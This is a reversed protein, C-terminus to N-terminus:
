NCDISEIVILIGYMVCVATMLWISGPPINWGSRESNKMLREPRSEIWLPFSLVKRKWSRPWNNYNCEGDSLNFHALPAYRLSSLDLSRKIQGISPIAHRHFYRTWIFVQLHSYTINRIIVSAIESSNWRLSLHTLFLLWRSILRNLMKFTVVFNSFLNRM